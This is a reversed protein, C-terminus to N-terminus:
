CPRRSRTRVPPMLANSRCGSYERNASGVIASPSSSRRPRFYFRRRLEALVRERARLARVTIGRSGGPFRCNRERLRLFFLLRFCLFLSPSRSPLFSLLFLFLKARARVITICAISAIRTSRTSTRKGDLSRTLHTREKERESVSEESKGAEREREGEKAREEVKEIVSKGAQRRHSFLLSSAGRATVREEM